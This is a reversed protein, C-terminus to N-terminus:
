VNKKDIKTGILLECVSMGFIIIKKDYKYSKWDIDGQVRELATPDPYRQFNCVSWVVVIEGGGVPPDADPLDFVPSLPKNETWSILYKLSM